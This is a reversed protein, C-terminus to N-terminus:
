DVQDDCSGIYRMRAHKMKHYKAEVFVMLPAAEDQKFVLIDSVNKGHFLIWSSPLMSVLENILWTRMGTENSFLINKM